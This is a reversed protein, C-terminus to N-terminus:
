TRCPALALRVSTRFRTDQAPAQLKSKWDEPQQKKEEQPKKAASEEKKEM